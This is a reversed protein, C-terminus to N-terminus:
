GAKAASLHHPLPCPAATDHKLEYIVIGDDVTSPRLWDPHTVTAHMDSRGAAWHQLMADRSFEYDRSELESEAVRYILHVIDARATRNAEMLRRIEPRQQDRAPLRAILELTTKKNQQIEDLRDTNYRARSSYIIEKQRSMVAPMDAPLSGSASFLDVQAIFLKMNGRHDLVYQVPTNSLIGGDWYHRDEVVVPAFAPPLAGSAMIHEPGIRTAKLGRNDFYKSNGSEVDVAGVSFRMAGDNIRDFDVLRELTAQLPSTDYFSIAEPIGGSRFYPPPFRPAFFGPVGTSAAVFAGLHHVAKQGALPAAGLPNSSVLDWFERLRDVRRNPPNGAILAANIAGISVGAIWAPERPFNAIEEFVGAQYAGLAGGGQFVLVIHEHDFVAPKTVSGASRTPPM